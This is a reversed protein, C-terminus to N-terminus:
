EFDTKTNEEDINWTVDKVNSKYRDNENVINSM